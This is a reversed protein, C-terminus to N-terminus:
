CFACGELIVPIGMAKQQFRDNEPAIFAVPLSFSPYHAFCGM